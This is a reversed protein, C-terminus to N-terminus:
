PHKFVLITCTSTYRRATTNSRWAIAVFNTSYQLTHRKTTLITGGPSVQLFLLMIDGALRKTGLPVHGGGPPRSALKAHRSQLLALHHHLPVFKTQKPHAHDVFSQHYRLPRSTPNRSNHSPVYGKLQSELYPNLVHFEKLQPELHRIFM